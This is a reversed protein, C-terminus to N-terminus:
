RRCRKAELARRIVEPPPKLPLLSDRGVIHLTFRHRVLWRTVTRSSNSTVIEIRKDHARLPLLLESAGPLPSANEVGRLESSEIISSARRM